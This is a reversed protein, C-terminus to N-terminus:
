NEGGRYVLMLNNAPLAVRRSREFGWASGLRDLESVNRLGWEANRDRLAKDFDVNTQATEVGNELYPGYLM